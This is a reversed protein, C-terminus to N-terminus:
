TKVKAQHIYNLVKKVESEEQLDKKCPVQNLFPPPPICKCHYLIHLVSLDVDCVECTPKNRENRLRYEHTARIHGLRLRRIIVEERRNNTPLIILPAVSPKYVCLKAHKLNWDDQWITKQKEKIASGYEQLSLPLQVEEGDITAQKALTDAQENGNIGVHGPSWCLLIEIEKAKADDWALKVKAIVDNSHNTDELAQLVSKSDTFITAPNINEQIIIEMATKIAVAEATFISTSWPLRIKKNLHPLTPIFVGAGKFNAGGSGDTFIHPFPHSSAHELFSHRTIISSEEKNTKKLRQCITPKIRLWPPNVYTASKTSINRLHYKEKLMALRNSPPPIKGPFQNVVETNYKDQLIKRTPHRPHNQAKEAYKLFLFERRHSLSSINAEMQLSSIPTTSMAGFALRLSQNQIVELKSLNSKSATHYLLSGYDLIPRICSKYLLLLTKSDAGWKTNSVVRLLNIARGANGKLVKIHPGWKLSKDLTMGLFKVRDVTPIEVNSITLRPTDHNKFNSTFKMTYSKEASIRFNTENSWERIKDLTGQLIQESTSIQNSAHFLVIDDVYILYKIQNPICKRITNIAVSFLTVSLSSGQPIGLEVERYNSMTDDLCVQFNRQELFSQIMCPLKGKLNFTELEKLITLHWCSDYAKEIDLFVATLFQKNLIAHRIESELCILNDITSRGRRFGSQEIPLFNNTELFWYLRKNLLKDLIKGLCSTLSIPRYNRPNSAEKYKKLIPIITATKWQRPYIGSNWIKNYFIQLEVLMHDPLQKLFQYHILDPGISTNGASKITEKIEQLTFDVNYPENKGQVLQFHPSISTRFKSIFAGSSNSTSQQEQFTSALAEVIEPKSELKKNNVTMYKITPSSYKGQIRAIRKWIKTTPTETTLQSVYNVWSERKAQIFTRNASAKEKKFNISNEITMNRNYEKLAQVRKDKAAKCANNWWPVPIRKPYTEHLPIAKKAAAIIKETVINVLDQINSINQPISLNINALYESWNAKKLNWKPRCYSPLQGRKIELKIPFHDSSYTDDFTTWTISTRLAPSVITIDIHSSSNNATSIHTQMDEDIVVMNLKDFIEELYKGKTCSIDSHWLLSRANWDGTVIKPHPIDEILKKIEDPSIVRWDEESIYISCISIPKDLTVRVATAQLRSQIDIKGQPLKPNVLIGTGGHGRTSTAKHSYYNEYGKVNVNANAPNLQTEQLCIIDPQIENIFSQLNLKKANIGQCNWSIIKVNDM